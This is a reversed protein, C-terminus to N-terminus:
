HVKPSHKIQFNKTIKVKIVVTDIHTHTHPLFTKGNNETQEILGM